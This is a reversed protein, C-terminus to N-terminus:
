RRAQSRVAARLTFAAPEAYSLPDEAVPMAIFITHPKSASVLEHSRRLYRTTTGNDRVYCYADLPTSPNAWHFGALWGACAPFPPLEMLSWRNAQSIRDPMARM